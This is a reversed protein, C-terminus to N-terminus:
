YELVHRKVLVEQGVFCFHMRWNIMREWKPDPVPRRWDGNRNWQCEYGTVEGIYGARVIKRVTNYLPSSHYQHGTQFILNHKSAEDIVMQIEQIGKVM